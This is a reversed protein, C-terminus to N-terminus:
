NCVYESKRVIRCLDSLSAAVIQTKKSNFIKKRELDKQLAIYRSGVIKFLGKLFAVDTANLKFLM